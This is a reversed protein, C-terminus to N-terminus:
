DLTALEDNDETNRKKMDRLKLLKIYAELDELSEPSLNHIKQSIDNEYSHNSANYLIEEVSKNVDTRGLLYDTTTNFINAIISLTEPDPNTRGTEYNAIATRVIGLKNALEEQTMNYNKRLEKLRYKFKSIDSM